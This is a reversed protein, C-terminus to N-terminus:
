GKNVKSPAALLMTSVVTASVSSLGCLLISKVRCPFNGVFMDAGRKADAM